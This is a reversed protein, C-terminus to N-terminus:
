SSILVDMVAILKEAVDDMRFRREYCRFADDRLRDCADPDLGIWRQLLRVTGSLDDDEVLGAQDSTIERWINVRNSILVPCRCALAEAVSVGFNEQHSPLIFTEAARFAGWKLDGTLM